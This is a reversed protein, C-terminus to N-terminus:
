CRGCCGRGVREVRGEGLMGGVICVREEMAREVREGSMM